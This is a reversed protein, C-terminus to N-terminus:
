DLRVVYAQADPETVRVSQAIADAHARDSALPNIRVWSGTSGMFQIVKATTSYRDLLDDRLRAANDEQLFAGVQVCWRGVPSVDPRQQVVEIRVQAVGMRYVGTAKAAAISLDLSRGPVFPGRDTIRVTTDLQTALNTVRVLTGMPLTRHAATLSNGDYVDGNASRRGSPAYWSAVAFEVMGVPATSSEIAPPEVPARHPLSPERQPNRHAVPPPPPYSRRSVQTKKHCGTTLTSVVLMAAAIAVRYVKRSRSVAACASRDM